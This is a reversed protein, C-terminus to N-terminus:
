VCVRVCVDGGLVKPAKEVPTVPVVGSDIVVGGIENKRTTEKRMPFQM